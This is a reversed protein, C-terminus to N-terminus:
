QKKAKKKKPVRERYHNMPDHDTEVNVFDSPKKGKQWLDFGYFSPKYISKYDVDAKEPVELGTAWYIGNIVLRRLNEDDLDSAAGMTTTFIPSVNGNEHKFERVWAVPIMPENKSAVGSSTPDFNETVEGRLLITVPELPKAGYVDSEAFIQDVGNLIAHSANAEEIHTRTAQTKHAGHHGAWTEGLVQRGFGGKWGKEKSNFNYHAYKSQDSFKFGHTTTRLSIIPTGKEFANVFHAMDEDSYARFRVCMVIADATDFAEAYGLSAVKTPNVTGDEDFSFLVTSDFGQSALIQALMPMSEESRYEEDGSVLVIHKGAGAGGEVGEFFLHNEITEALLLNSALLCGTAMKFAKKM